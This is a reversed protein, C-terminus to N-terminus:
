RTIGKYTIKSDIKDLSELLVQQNNKLGTVFVSDPMSSVIVVSQEKIGDKTLIKAKGNKVAARPLTMTEREAKQNISVNVFMGNYVKESEVPSISYYVDASQTQQNIVDSVRIIKGHAILKGSADTFNASSKERYLKLDEMSIPVKVEFDGTKAIKAIQGGPNAISGPEAFTSIVTGSFPAAYIYKAMHAELSKLNYYDAVINRGTMFMLEKSSFMEPLEPILADEENLDNIFKIWKDQESPFDLEIDPLTNLIQNILTSKRATLTFRGELSNVRYLVQGKRFNTGPKMTIAGKELKGQVEFSVIVESNPTVQGYSTLTLNGVKNEVNGVVVYVLTDVTKLEKDYDKKNASLTLYILGTIGLFVSILIIQSRKM